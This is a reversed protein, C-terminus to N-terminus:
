GWAEHLGGEKGYVPDAEPLPTAAIRQKAREIDADERQTDYDEQGAPYAGVVLLDPSAEIRKHATGAPLIAVDGAMVQVVPGTPGGFQLEATGAAVGLVEHANSHYHHFPYVGNRWTGTWGNRRFHQEFTAAPDASDLEVARRYVLLPLRPNNPFAGNEALRHQEVDM